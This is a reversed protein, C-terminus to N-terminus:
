EIRKTPISINMSYRGPNDTIIRINKIKLIGKETDADIKHVQFGIIGRDTKSDILHTTPIGNVWIKFTDSIAEIRYHNWDSVKYANLAEEEGEGMGKIPTLWKRGLEEYIGGTWRRETQDIEMQFGHTRGDFLEPDTTARILIGSNLPGTLKVDCELIFDELNEKYVLYSFNVSDTQETVLMGDEVWAEVAGDRIEWGALDSGNFIERWPEENSSNCFSFMWLIGMLLVKPFIKKSEKTAGQKEITEQGRLTLVGVKNATKGFSRTPMSSYIAPNFPNEDKRKVLIPNYTTDSAFTKEVSETAAAALGGGLCNRRNM